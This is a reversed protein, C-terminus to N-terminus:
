EYFSYVQSETIKSFYNKKIDDLSVHPLDNRDNYMKLLNSELENINSFEKYSETLLDDFLINKNIKLLPDYLLVKKGLAICELVSASACSLVIDCDRILDKTNSKSISVLKTLMLSKYYNIQKKSSSPHFRINFSINALKLNIIIKNLLHIIQVTEIELLPPLILCKFITNNKPSYSQDYIHKYRFSPVLIFDQHDIYEKSRALQENSAVGIVKPLLNSKKEEKTVLRSFDYNAMLFGQYGLTLADKMYVNFGNLYAKEVANNEHWLIFKNVNIKKMALRQVFKSSNFANFTMKVGRNLNVEEKILDTLDYKFNKNQPIVINKDQLSNYLSLFYDQFKLIDEKLIWKNKSKKIKRILGFFDILSFNILRPHHYYDKALNKPVYNNFLFFRDEDINSNQSIYYNILKIESKINIKRFIFKYAVFKSLERIFFIFVKLYNILRELILSGKIKIKFTVNGNGFNKYVIKKFVFSDVIIEDFKVNKEILAEILILSTM